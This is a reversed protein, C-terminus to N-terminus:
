WRTTAYRDMRTTREVDPIPAYEATPHAVDRTHRARRRRTERRSSRSSQASTSTTGSRPHVTHPLSLPQLHVCEYLLWYVLDGRLQGLKAVRQQQPQGVHGAVLALREPFAPSAEGEPGPDPRILAGQDVVVQYGEALREALM